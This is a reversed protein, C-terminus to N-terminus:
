EANRRINISSINDAILLINYWTNKELRTLVIVENKGKVIDDIHPIIMDHDPLPYGTMKM